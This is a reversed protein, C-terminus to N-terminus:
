ATQGFNRRFHIVRFRPEAAALEDLLDDSGDTSGDNVLILEWPRGVAELTERIRECLTALSGAENCIPVTVSIMPSGVKRTTGQATWPFPEAAWPAPGGPGPPSTRSRCRAVLRSAYVEGRRFSNRAHRLQECRESRAEVDLEDLPDEFPPAQTQIGAEEADLANRGPM